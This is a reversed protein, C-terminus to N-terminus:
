QVKGGFSLLPNGATMQNALQKARQSHSQQKITVYPSIWGKRLYNKFGMDLDKFPKERNTAKEIFDDILPKIDILEPFLENILLLSSNNPQFGEINNNKKNNNKKKNKKKLNEPNNQTKLSGDPNDPNKPRGGLKGNEKNRKCIKNYKEINRDFQNKFPTFVLDVIPSLELEKGQNYDRIALFLEALQEETLKDLIELSDLHLIISPQHNAM